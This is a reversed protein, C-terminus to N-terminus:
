IYYKKLFVLGKKDMNENKENSIKSILKFRFIDDIVHNVKDVLGKDKKNIFNNFLNESIEYYLMAQTNNNLHEHQVALNQYALILIIYNHELEISCNIDYNWKSM